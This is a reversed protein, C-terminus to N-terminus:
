GTKGFGTSKPSIGGPAIVVVIGVVIVAIGAIRAEERFACM